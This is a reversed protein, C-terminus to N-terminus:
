NKCLICSLVCCVELKRCEERLIAIEQNSLLLQVESRSARQAFTDREADSRQTAKMALDLHMQMAQASRHEVDLQRELDYKQLMVNSIESQSLTV